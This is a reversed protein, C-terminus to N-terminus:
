VSKVTAGADAGQGPAWAGVTGLPPDEWRPEQVCQCLSM